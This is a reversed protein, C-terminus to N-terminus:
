VRRRCDSRLAGTTKKSSHRFLFLGPLSESVWNSAKSSRLWAGMTQSDTSGPETAAPNNVDDGSVQIPFSGLYFLFEERM